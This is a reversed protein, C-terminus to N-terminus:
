EGEVEGDQVESMFKCEYRNNHIKRVSILRVNNGSQRYQELFQLCKQYAAKDNVAWTEEPWEITEAEPDEIMPAVPVGVQPAPGPPQGAVLLVIALAPVLLFVLPNLGAKQQSQM